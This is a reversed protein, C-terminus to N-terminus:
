ISYPGRRRIKVFLKAWFIGRKGLHESMRIKGEFAEMEAFESLQHMKRDHVKQM